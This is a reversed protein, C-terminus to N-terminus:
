LSSVLYLNTLLIHKRASNKLKEASLIELVKMAIFIALVHVKREFFIHGVM